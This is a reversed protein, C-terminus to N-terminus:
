LSRGTEWTSPNFAHVVIDLKMINKKQNLLFPNRFVKPATGAVQEHVCPQCGVWLSLGAEAERTSFNLAHAVM